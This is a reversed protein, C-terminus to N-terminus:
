FRSRSACRRSGNLFTLHHATQISIQPTEYEFLVSPSELPLERSRNTGANYVAHVQRILIGPM